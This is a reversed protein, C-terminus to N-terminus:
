KEYYHLVVRYTGDSRKTSETKHPSVGSPLQDKAARHAENYSDGTGVVQRSSKEAMEVVNHSASVDVTPTLLLSVALASIKLFNM